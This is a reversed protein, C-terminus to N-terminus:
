SNEDRHSKGALIGISTEIMLPRITNPVVEADPIGMERFLQLILTSCTKGGCAGMGARTLAKIENIDRCGKTILEKVEEKTVRECRCLFEKEQSSKTSKGALENRDPLDKLVIGTIKNAIEKPTQVEIISTGSFGKMSISRILQVKGLLQGCEDVALIESGDLLDSREMEFAFSVIPFEADKRFDVLTIALGPCAALCRRCGSCKGSELDFVPVRRIDEKPITILGLPCVAACPDCPIEQHCHIVPYVDQDVPTTNAQIIKGPKSKLVDIMSELELNSEVERGLAVAVQQAISKGSLIAASAEAIEFADGVSFVKMGYKKAKQCFENVPTLGVAVLLSDCIFTKESGVLEHFDQDVQSITVTEMSSDGDVRKVIHSPYIPVGLRALKDRHVRYGTCDPLAECLGVVQIGAQIAHYGTILGVNGGGMIFVRKGPRILDRNMLTQFAGAGMVGPLTNGPFSVFKERAGTAILIIEPVVQIYTSGNKLIGVVQDSFVAIAPSNLWVEVCSFSNVQDSLIDAIDIGRQGAYVLETSGFFRHTQLVLKGGVRQKDDVLLTHIGLKGLEIAATLGAPGGGIILVPVHIIGYSNKESIGDILGLEPLGDISRVQMGAKVEEMCAKVPRGNAMVLCQSCQNNACFLGQPSHDRPHYGFVRIGQAYLASAITDGQLAHIEVDNWQFNVRERDPIQLVPHSIIRNDSM